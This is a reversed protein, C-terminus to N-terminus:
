QIKTRREPTLQQANACDRLANKRQRLLPIFDM